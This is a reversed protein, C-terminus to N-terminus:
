GLLESIMKLNEIISIHQPCHSECAGCAICDKPNGSGDELARNYLFGAGGKNKYRMYDNYAEFFRPILIGQPCGDVCYRCNTCSIAKSEELIRAAEEVTAAEDADLPKFEKMYSTNDLVQQLDSMGSLVTIIGDKSAAYRVAWSAVSAEPNKSKLLNQVEEIMGGALSGGKVPEMVIVPKGHKRATEYCLRSQIGPDEWDKYNIQLQVFEAEPHKTLIEDLVDATDHFSFGIHKVRGEAKLERMLSWMDEREVVKFNDRNMCHLLYFDFYEVGCRRCSTEFLERGHAKDKLFFLPLKDALQFSERPYRDVLCAKAAGESAGDGYIYATDFYTFGAEIYADVMKKVLDHDIVGKEGAKEPLRMLGFGLKKLNEGLYKESM